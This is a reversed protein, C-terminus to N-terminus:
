LKRIEQMSEKIRLKQREVANPQKPPFARASPLRSDESSPDESRYTFGGSQGREHSRHTSSDPRSVDMPLGLKFSPPQSYEYELEETRGQHQSRLQHTAEKRPEEQITDLKQILQRYEQLKSRAQLEGGSSVQLDARSRALGLSLENPQGRSPTSLLRELHKTPTNSARQVKSLVKDIDEMLRDPHGSSLQPQPQGNLLHNINSLSSFNSLSSGNNLPLHSDNHLQNLLTSSLGYDSPPHGQHSLPSKPQSSFHDYIATPQQPRQPKDGALGKKAMSFQLAEIKSKMQQMKEERLARDRQVEEVSIDNEM